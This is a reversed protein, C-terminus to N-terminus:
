QKVGRIQKLVERIEQEQIGRVLEVEGIDKALVFTYEGRKVKKDRQMALLLNDISYSDQYRVPLQFLQILEETWKVKESSFGYKRQSLRIAGAMGIAIAEGHTFEQYNSVAELAHGITHGYNLIARLGQEKEDASVVSAKIACGRYIAKQLKEPDRNLLGDSSAMLWEAFSRDWILGHKIVEAFGSRLEREPLSHLVDLDFLVMLPQHFAGIYNKALPHNVGVKGGVSSDHALLTTPLQIFDIGRMYSAAVFGALDGVVGGGLALIVSKRDLGFQICEGIIQEIQQLTKSSEGAPVVTLGVEFGATHLITQIRQAYLPAVHSDTIIMCKQQTTIGARELLSPLEAYVQVGIYIPYTSSPTQVHLIEM